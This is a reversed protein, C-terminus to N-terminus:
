SEQGANRWSGYWATRSDYDQKIRSFHAFRDTELSTINFIGCERSIEGIEMSYPKESQAYMANWNILVTQTIQGYTARPQATIPNALM